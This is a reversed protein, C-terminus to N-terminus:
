YEAEVAVHVVGPLRALAAEVAARDAFDNGARAVFVRVLGASGPGDVLRANLASLGGALAGWRLQDDLELQVLWGQGVIAPQGASLLTIGPDPAPRALIVVQLCLVLGAAAALAPRWWQRVPTGANIDRRLRAWGLDSALPVPEARLQGRLQQLALLEARADASRALWDDVQRREAESLTGNVYWPLLESFQEPKM